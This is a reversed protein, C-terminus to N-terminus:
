ERKTTIYDPLFPYGTVCAHFLIKEKKKKKKKTPHVPIKKYSLTTGQEKNM